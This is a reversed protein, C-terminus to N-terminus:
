QIHNLKNIGHLPFESHSTHKWPLLIIRMTENKILRYKQCADNIVSEYDEKKKILVDLEEQLVALEQLFLFVNIVLLLILFNTLFTTHIYTHLSFLSDNFIYM